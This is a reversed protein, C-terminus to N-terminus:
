SSLTGNKSGCRVVGLGAGRGGSWAAARPRSPGVRASAEGSESAEGLPVSVGSRKLLVCLPMDAVSGCVQHSSFPASASMIAAPWGRCMPKKMGVLSLQPAKSLYM